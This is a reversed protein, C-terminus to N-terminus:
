AVLTSGSCPGDFFISFDSATGVTNEKTGGALRLFVLSARIALVSCRAITASNSLVPLELESV